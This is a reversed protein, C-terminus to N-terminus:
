KSVLLTAFYDKYDNTEYIVQFDLVPPRVNDLVGHILQFSEEEM